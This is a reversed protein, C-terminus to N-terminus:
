CALSYLLIFQWLLLFLSTVFIADTALPARCRNLEVLTSFFYTRKYTRVTCPPSTSHTYTRVLAGNKQSFPPEHM